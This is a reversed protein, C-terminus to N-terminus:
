KQTYVQKKYLLIKPRNPIWDIKLITLINFTKVGHFIHGMQATQWWPLVDEDGHWCPTRPWCNCGRKAVISAEDGSAQRALLPDPLCLLSAVRFSSLIHGMDVAGRGPEAAGEWVISKISAMGRNGLQTQSFPTMPWSFQRRSVLRHASNLHLEIPWIYIRQDQCALFYADKILAFLLNDKIITILHPKKNINSPCLKTQSDEAYKSAM